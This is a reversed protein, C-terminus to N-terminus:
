ITFLDIISRQISGEQPSLPAYNKRNEMQMKETDFEGGLLAIM